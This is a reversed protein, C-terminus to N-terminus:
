ALSGFRGDPDLAQKVRQLFIPDPQKGLLPQPPPTGLVTLGSLGQQLLLADLAEPSDHWAVWAVNGGVSYRREVGRTALAAELPAIRKPTLPIKVALSGAAVWALEAADRWLQDDEHIVDGEGCFRQLNDLRTGLSEPLGGIRIWLDGPPILDLADVELSSLLLQQMTKVASGMDPRKVKLTAYSPPQPFVKFTVELLVGFRGLSGVFFKPFDFGAANKVVKGGGRVLNGRGDVFRVGILFDRIGGYRYRGPGATNAAITGGLTAGRSVLMPDFPLYQGNTALLDVVESVPTGALATFTFESPEYELVGRFDSLDLVAAAAAAHLATKTRGGQPHLRDGSQLRERVRGLMEEIAESETRQFNTRVM